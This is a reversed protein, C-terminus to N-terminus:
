KLIMFLSCVGNSIMQNTANWVTAFDWNKNLFNLNEIIGNQVSFILNLTPTSKILISNNFLFQSKADTHM